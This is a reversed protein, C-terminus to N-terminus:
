KAALFHQARLLACISKGDTIDGRLAKAVAEAFPIRELQLIEDTELAQQTQRLGTALFLWIREDTFGPSAYIFGMPTLTQAVVGAEEELERAACAEPAEDKDMKGAPVELLYGSAAYRYQREMIVHNDADVPVIAAAGPHRVMEFEVSHGNPLEVQDATLNLIRGQYITRTHLCRAEKM